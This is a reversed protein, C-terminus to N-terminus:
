LQQGRERCWRISARMGEFLDTPPDYGLEARARGIDCAITDKMEGLVHIAQHYRGKSQLLRDVKEAWESVTAQRDMELICVSRGVEQAAISLNICLTSKGSGGKQTVFAITRM